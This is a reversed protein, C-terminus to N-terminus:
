PTATATATVTVTSTASPATTATATAAVSTNTATGVTAGGVQIAVYVEDGFFQGAATSIRWNGRVPGTKNPATMNVSIDIEANAPVSSPLTYTVGGMADGGTFAFKFGADWACTGSNRVKWTKTFTQGPTMSTNDQIGVDSVYSLRYCSATPNAAGVGFPTVNALTAISMTAAPTNTPAPTSTPAALATQTLQASFTAVALTQMIELGLTPTPEATPQGGCAGLMLGLVILIPIYLTKSYKMIKRETNIQSDSDCEPQGSYQGQESKFNKLKVTPHPVPCL